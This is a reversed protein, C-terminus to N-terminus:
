SKDRGGGFDFTHEVLKSVMINEKLNIVPCKPSLFKLLFLKTLIVFYVCEFVYIRNYFPLYRRGTAKNRVCYLM